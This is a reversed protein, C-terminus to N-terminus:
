WKYKPNTSESFYLNKLKNVALNAKERALDKKVKLAKKRIKDMNKVGKKIRFVLDGKDNKVYHAMAGNNLTVMLGETPKWKKDSKLSQFTNYDLIKDNINTM